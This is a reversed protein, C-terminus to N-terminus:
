ELARTKMEVFKGDKWELRHLIINSVMDYVEVTDGKEKPLRYLINYAFSGKDVGNDLAKEKLMAMDKEFDLAPLVEGTVNEWNISHRLFHIEQECLPGCAKSEVGLVLAGDPAIFMALSGSLESGDPEYTEMYYNNGDYTKIKSARDELTNGIDQMFCDQPLSNYYYRLIELSNKEAPLTFSSIVIKAEEPNMSEFNGYFAFKSTEGLFVESDPIQTSGKYKLDIKMVSFLEVADFKYDYREGPIYDYGDGYGKNNSVSSGSKMKYKPLDAMFFDTVFVDEHIKWPSMLLGTCKSQPSDSHVFSTTADVSRDEKNVSKVVEGSKNCGFILLCALVTFIIRIKM